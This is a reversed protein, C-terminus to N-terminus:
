YGEEGSPFSGNKVDGSYKNVAQLIRTHLDEYRRVYRPNFEPDMGLMDNIVLIQGDCRPGAGIGITPVSVGSTIEGALEAPVGELVIAFVGAEELRKAERLIVGAAEKERGQVRYGGMRHVSQPTLGLHGMVPINNEVLFAATRATRGAGELKVAAAGGEKVIRGAQRLAQRRSINYSLFPMDSVLLARPSSRKVAKTHYLIEEVTVPLTNEYGLEVMGLSDGVLLIDVDAGNLIKAMSYSYCTLATIKRGSSKMEKLTVTTIKKM